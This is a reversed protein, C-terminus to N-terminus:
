SEWWSECTTCRVIDVAFNCSARDGQPGSASNFGKCSTLVAEEPRHRALILIQPKHWPRKEM